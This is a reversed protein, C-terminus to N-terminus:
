FPIQDDQVPPAQQHSQQQGGSQSGVFDITQVNLQLYTKGDYERQSVEGSVFLEKGKTIHPAMKEGRASWLSCDFWITQKKEGFGVNNAISFGTVTTSGAERTIADKGVRGVFSMVNSM